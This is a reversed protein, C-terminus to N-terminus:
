NKYYYDNQLELFEKYEIEIKTGDVPEATSSYCLKKWYSTYSGHKDGGTKWYTKVSDPSAIGVPTENEKQEKKEVSYVYSSIKNILYMDDSFTVHIDFTSSQSEIWVESKQGKKILETNEFTTYFNYNM